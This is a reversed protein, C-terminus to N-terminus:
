LISLISVAVKKLAQAALEPTIDRQKEAFKEYGAQFKLRASTLYPTEFHIHMQLEPHPMKDTPQQHIGMVYAAGYKPHDFFQAYMKATLTLSKALNTIQAGTLENISSIQFTPLVIIEYPWEAWYPVLVAFDTNKYVIRENIKM